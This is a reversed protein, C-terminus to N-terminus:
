SKVSQYCESWMKYVVALHILQSDASATTEDDDDDNDSRSGDDVDWFMCMSILKLWDTTAASVAESNLTQVADAATTV